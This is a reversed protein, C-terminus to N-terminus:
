GRARPSQVRTTVPQCGTVTKKGRSSAAAACKVEKRRRESGEKHKWIALNKKPQMPRPDSDFRIRKNIKRIQLMEDDHYAKKKKKQHRVEKEKLKPKKPFDTKNKNIFEKTNDL